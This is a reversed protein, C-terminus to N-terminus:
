PHRLLIQKASENLLINEGYHTQGDTGKPNPHSKKSQTQIGPQNRRNAPPFGSIETRTSFPEM